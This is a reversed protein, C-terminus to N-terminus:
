LTDVKITEGLPAAEDRLFVADVPFNRSHQPAWPCSLSVYQAAYYLMFYLEKLTFVVFNRVKHVRM